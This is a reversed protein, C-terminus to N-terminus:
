FTIGVQLAGPPWVLRFVIANRDTFHWRAGAGFHPLVYIDARGGYCGRADCWYDNYGYYDDWLLFVIGLEPFVSWSEGLYLNWDVAIIPWFALDNDDCGYPDCYRSRYYYRHYGIFWLDAGPSLALEDHISTGRLFGDPVIPIDIRFGAGFTHWWGGLDLHIEPRVGDIANHDGPHSRHGQASASATWSM